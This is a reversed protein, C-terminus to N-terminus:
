RRTDPADPCERECSKRCAPRIASFMSYHTVSLTKLEANESTATAAVLSDALGVGHSRDYDRKCLGGLRAIAVTVPVVRFLTM